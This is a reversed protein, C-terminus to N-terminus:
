ENDDFSDVAYLCIDSQYQPVKTSIDIFKNFVQDGGAFTFYEANLDYLIKAKGKALRDHIM